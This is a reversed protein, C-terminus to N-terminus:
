GGIVPALDGVLVELDRTIEILEKLLYADVDRHGEYEALNRQHHCKDLIRWKAKELGLTHELCQFVLYRADSRYGHWRLAALSLAHAAGYALAFQSDPSLGAITVDSLKIRAAALMGDFETQDPPERRLQNIDVLNELFQNAM